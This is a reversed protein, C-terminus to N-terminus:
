SPTSAEVHFSIKPQRDRLNDEGGNRWVPARSKAAREDLGKVGRTM